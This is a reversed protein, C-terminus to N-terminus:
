RYGHEVCSACRTRPAVVRYLGCGTCLTWLITQATTM